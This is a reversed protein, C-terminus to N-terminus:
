RYTKAFFMLLEVLMTRLVTKGVGTQEGEVGYLLLEQVDKTALVQHTLDLPILTTKGALEANGFIDAAAEPDILINFEAFQTWNGVREVEDVKGMIAESFGGGLAGGMISLGAIHAVLEPHQRFLLAVNTLAGTAVLWATGPPEATLAAAIANIAPVDTRATKLPRPLLTTGDLGSEGHIDTPAHMPPRILAQSAGAYVPVEDHKGIATLVSSANLTTKSRPRTLPPLTPCSSSGLVGRCPRSGSSPTRSM